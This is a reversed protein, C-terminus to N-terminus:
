STCGFNAAFIAFDFVTVFGDGDLDGGTNPPVATGFNTALIAFDFVNTSGDGDLDGVCPPPPAKRAFGRLDSMMILNVVSPVPAGLAGDEDHTAARERARARASSPGTPGITGQVHVNFGPGSPVLDLSVIEIPVTNGDDLSAYGSVQYFIDFFSDVTFDGDRDIQALGMAMPAVNVFGAPAGPVLSMAVIETQIQPQSPPPQFDIRYTIDFFSDVTFPPGPLILELFRGTYPDMLQAGSNVNTNHPYPAGGVLFDQPQFVSILPIQVGPEPALLVTGEFPLSGPDFLVTAGSDDCLYLPPISNDVYYLAGACALGNSADSFTGDAVAISEGCSGNACMGWPRVLIDVDISEGPLLTIPPSVAQSSTQNQPDPPLPICPNPDIQIPWNDGPGPDALGYAERVPGVPSEGPQKATNRFDGSITGDWSETPDNNTLRYTAGASDGAHTGITEPSLLELDLRPVGPQGPLEDVICIQADGTLPGITTGNSFTVTSSISIVCNRPPGAPITVPIVITQLGPVVPFPGVVVPGVGPGSPLCNGVTVTMTVTYPPPPCVPAQPNSEILTLYHWTTINTTFQTNAPVAITGPSVKGFAYGKGCNSPPPPPTGGCAEARRPLALLAASALLAAIAIGVLVRTSIHPPTRFRSRGQTSKQSM